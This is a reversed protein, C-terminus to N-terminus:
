RRPDRGGFIPLCMFVVVAAYILFLFVQQQLERKQIPTINSNDEDFDYKALEEKSVPSVTLLFKRLWSRVVITLLVCSVILFYWNIAISQQYNPDIMQAAQEQPIRICTCRFSRSSHECLFRAVRHSHPTCELLPHRGISMYLIAALPPLVIFGADGAINLNIGLSCSQHGHHRDMRQRALSISWSPLSSVVRRQLPLVSSLSLCWASRHLAPLKHHCEDLSLRIGDLSLLNFVEITSGDAPNVASVGAVASRQFSRSLSRWDLSCRSRTRFNTEPVSLRMLIRDLRSKKASSNESM